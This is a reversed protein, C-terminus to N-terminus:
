RRRKAAKKALRRANRASTADYPSPEIEPPPEALAGVVEDASLTGEAQRKALIALAEAFARHSTLIVRGGSM